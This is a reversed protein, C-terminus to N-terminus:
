EIQKYHNYFSRKIWNLMNDMFKLAKSKQSKTEIIQYAREIQGIRPLEIEELTKGADIKSIIFSKLSNFFALQEDLFEQPNSVVEGHGPIIYDLKMSKFKKFALLYEEPNGTKRPSSQYFGLFPLGFNIPETFFLDGAFLVRESPIYAVSSGLSHGAVLHVEVEIDDSLIFKNEFTEIIRRGYKTSKPMNQKCKQSILLTSDIFADM